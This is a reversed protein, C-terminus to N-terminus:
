WALALTLCVMKLFLMVLEYYSFAGFVGKLHGVGPCGIPQGPTPRWSPRKTIVGM